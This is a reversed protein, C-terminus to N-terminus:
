IQTLSCKEKASIIWGGWLHPKDLHQNSLMIIACTHRLSAVIFLWELIHQKVTKPPTRFGTLIQHSWWKGWATCCREKAYLQDPQQNHGTSHQDVGRWHSHSTAPYQCSSSCATTDLADWVPEIPSMDPSYAPRALVPINEAEIFQTSIRGVHPRANDHQLMLHHDHIFPVVIPRLIKDSYRQANLIGETFHMQTWQGYCLGAWVMVGYPGSLWRCEVDAFREGVRRWVRQRGDARYLSVPIWGHLSCRELTDSSM